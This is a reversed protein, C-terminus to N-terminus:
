RRIQGEQYDDPNLGAARFDNADASGSAGVWRRNREDVFYRDAGADVQVDDGSATRVTEEERMANIWSHQADLGPSDATGGSPQNLRNLFSATSAEGMAVRQEHIATNAAGAAVIDGMRQNHMTTNLNMWAASQQANIAQQNAFLQNEAARWQPSTRESYMAKLLLARDPEGGGTVFLVCVDAMWSPGFSNTSVFGLAEVTRGQDTFGFRASAATCRLRVGAEAARQHTAQVLEPEPQVAGARFGPAAGFRQSLYQPLFAEADVYGALQHVGPQIFMGSSPEYFDPLDPDHLSLRLSGDPSVARVVRRQAPGVRLLRVDHSWGAPLDVTFSAENVDAVSRWETATM